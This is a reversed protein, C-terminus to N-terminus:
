RQEIVAVAIRWFLVLFGAGVLALLILPVWDGWRRRRPDTASMVADMAAFQTPSLAGNRHPPEALATAADAIESDAPAGGLQRLTEAFLDRVAAAL